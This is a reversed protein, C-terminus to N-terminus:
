RSAVRGERVLKDYLYPFERKIVDLSFMQTLEIQRGDPFIIAILRERDFDEFSKLGKNEFLVKHGEKLYRILTNYIGRDNTKDSLFVRMHVDEVLNDQTDLAYEVYFRGSARRVDEFLITGTVEMAQAKAMGGTIHLAVLLGILKARQGIDKINEMLARITESIKSNNSVAKKDKKM